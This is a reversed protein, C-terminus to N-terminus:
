ATTATLAVSSQNSTLCALRNTSSKFITYFAIMCTKTAEYRINYYTGFINGQNHFYQKKPTDPLLLLLVAAAIALGLAIWKKM